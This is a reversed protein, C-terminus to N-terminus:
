GICCMWMSARWPKWCRAGIRRFLPLCRCVRAGLRPWTALALRGGFSFGVLRCTAREERQLIWAVLQQLEDPTYAEAWETRGHQPLDVAYLTRGPGLAAALPAFQEARDGYGHLAIWRQPGDGWRLLHIRGQSHTWFLSHPNM